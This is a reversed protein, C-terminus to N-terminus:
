RIISASLYPNKPEDVAKMSEVEILAPVGPRTNTLTGTVAIWSHERLYAPRDMALLLNVPQADAACCTMVHRYMAYDVQTDPLAADIQKRGVADPIALRGIVVIRGGKLREENSNAKIMDLQRADPSAFGQDVMGFEAAAEDSLSQTSLSNMEFGATMLLEDDSVKLVEADVAVLLYLPVIQVMLATWSYAPARGKYRLGSRIAWALLGLVAIILGGLMLYDHWAVVYHRSDDAFQIGVLLILWPSLTLAPHSAIKNFTASRM